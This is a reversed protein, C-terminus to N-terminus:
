EGSPVEANIELSLNIGLFASMPEALNQTDFLRLHGTLEPPIRYNLQLLAICFDAIEIFSIEAGRAGFRIGWYEAADFLSLYENKIEFTTTGDPLFVVNRPLQHVSPILWQNGDGLKCYAGRHPRRRLLDGPVPPSDNWVGVHYEACPIWTQKEDNVGWPQGARPWAFLTGGLEHPGSGANVQRCEAGEVHDALGVSELLNTGGTQNPIFIQYHM